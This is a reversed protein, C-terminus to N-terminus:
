RQKELLMKLYQMSLLKKAKILQLLYLERSYFVTTTKIGGGTSGPSAGIFMLVIMVIIGANSFNSLNFTSFGATRASVSNFLAGLWTINNTLKIMVAGFIILIITVWIVVKSHMSLSKWKFKNTKIDKIVFFGIGGLIILM